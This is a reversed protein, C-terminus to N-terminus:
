SPSPPPTRCNSNDRRLVEMVVGLGADSEPDQGLPSLGLHESRVANILGRDMPDGGFIRVHALVVLATKLVNARVRLTHPSWRGPHLHIYRDPEDALRLVWRSEDPLTVVAYNGQGALWALYVDHDLHNAVRLIELVHASLDRPSLPGTYLDMLKTGLVAVRAAWEPLAGPGTQAAAAIRARLAGAHHKYTNFLIPRLVELPTGADAEQLARISSPPLSM